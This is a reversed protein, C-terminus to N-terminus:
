QVKTDLYKRHHEVPPEDFVMEDEVDEFNDSEYIIINGDEYKCLFNIFDNYSWTEYRGEFIMKDVKPFHTAMRKIFDVVSSSFDMSKIIEYTQDFPITLCGDEIVIDDETADGMLDIFGTLEEYDGEAFVSNVEELVEQNAYMNLKGTLTIDM